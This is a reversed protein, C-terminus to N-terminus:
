ESHVINGQLLRDQDFLLLHTATDFLVPMFCVQYVIWFVRDHHGCHEHGSFFIQFIVLSGCVHLIYHLIM